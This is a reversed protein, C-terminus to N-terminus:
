AIAIYGRLVRFVRLPFILLNKIEKTIKTYKTTLYSDSM